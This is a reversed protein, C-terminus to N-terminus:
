RPEEEDRAPQPVLLDNLAAVVASLEAFKKNIQERVANIEADTDRTQM